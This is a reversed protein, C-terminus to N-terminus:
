YGLMQQGRCHAIQEEPQNRRARFKRRRQACGPMAYDDEELRGQRWAEIIEQTNGGVFAYVDIGCACAMLCLPRSIAGCILISTGQRVLCRVKEEPADVPLPVCTRHAICQQDVSIILAQRAVDFLPAIRENWVPLAIIM